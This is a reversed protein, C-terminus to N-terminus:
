PAFPNENPRAFPYEAILDLSYYRNLGSIGAVGAEELNIYNEQSLLREDILLHQVSGIVLKTDNIKIEIVEELKMGIKIPSEQVFPAEFGDLYDETFGCADFESTAADFKASTYHAREVHSTPVHNITYHKTELINAFTHRPVEEVPRTICGLLAPNSGLHVVSSFIALNSQGNKNQTGILNAPKIGSISNMLNLRPIRDLQQLDTRTYHRM